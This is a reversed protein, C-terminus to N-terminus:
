PAQTGGSPDPRRGPLLTTRRSAAPDPHIPIPTQAIGTSTACRVAQGLPPLHMVSQVDYRLFDVRLLDDRPGCRKCRDQPLTRALGLLKAAQGRLVDGLDPLRAQQFHQLGLAEAAVLEIKVGMEIHDALDRAAAARGAPAQAHHVGMAPKRAEQGFLGLRIEVAGVRIRDDGDDDGRAACRLLGIAAIHQVAEPRETRAALMGVPQEEAGGDLALLALRGVLGVEQNGGGIDPDPVVPVHHAQASGSAAAQDGLIDEHRRM